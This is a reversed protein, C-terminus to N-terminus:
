HLAFSAAAVQNKVFIHAEQRIRTQTETYTLCRSSVSQTSNAGIHLPKRRKHKSECHKKGEIEMRYAGYSRTCSHGPETCCDMTEEVEEYRSWNNLILLLLDAPM